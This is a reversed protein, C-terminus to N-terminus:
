TIVLTYLNQSLSKVWKLIIHEEDGEQLIIRSGSDIKKDEPIKVVAQWGKILELKGQKTSKTITTPMIAAIYEGEFIEDNDTVGIDIGLADNYSQQQSKVINRITCRKSGCLQHAEEFFNPQPIM